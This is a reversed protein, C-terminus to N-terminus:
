IIRIIQKKGCKKCKIILFPLEYHYEREEYPETLVKSYLPVDCLRWNCYSCKVFKYKLNNVTNIAVNLFNM